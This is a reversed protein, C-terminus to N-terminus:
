IRRSKRSPCLRRGPVFVIETPIKARRFDEASSLRSVIAVDTQINITHKIFTRLLLFFFCFVVLCNKARLGRKKNPPLPPCGQVNKLGAGGLPDFVGYTSYFAGVCRRMLGPWPEWPHSCQGLSCHCPTIWPRLRHPPWCRERLMECGNAVGTDWPGRPVLHCLHWRQGVM